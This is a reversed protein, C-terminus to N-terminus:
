KKSKKGGRKPVLIAHVLDRETFYRLDITDSFRAGDLKAHDFLTGKLNAGIFNAGRLDARQLDADTINVGEFNADRLDEGSLDIGSLDLNPIGKLNIPVSLAAVDDEVEDEDEDDAGDDDWDREWPEIKPNTIKTIKRRENVLGLLLSHSYRTKEQRTTATILKNIFGIRILEWEKKSQSARGTDLNLEDKAIAKAIPDEESNKIIVKIKKIKEPIENNYEPEKLEMHRDSPIFAYNSPTLGLVRSLGIRLQAYTTEDDFYDEKKLFDIFSKEDIPEGEKNVLEFNLAGGRYLIRTKNKGKNRNRKTRTKRQKNVKSFKKTM